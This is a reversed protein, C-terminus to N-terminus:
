RWRRQSGWFSSQLQDHSGYGRFNSLYSVIPRMYDVLQDYNFQRYKRIQLSLLSPIPSKAFGMDWCLDCFLWGQYQAIKTRHDPPNSGLEGFAWAKRLKRFINVELLWPPRASVTCSRRQMRWDNHFTSQIWNECRNETRWLDPL